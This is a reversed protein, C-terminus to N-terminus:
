ASNVSINYSVRLHHTTLLTVAITVYLAIMILYKTARNLRQLTCFTFKSAFSFFLHRLFCVYLIKSWKGTVTIYGSTSGYVYRRWPHYPIIPSEEVYVDLYQLVLAKNKLDLYVATHKNVM